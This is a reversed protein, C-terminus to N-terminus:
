NGSWQQFPSKNVGVRWLLPTVVYACEQQVEIVFM